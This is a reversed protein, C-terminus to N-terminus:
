SAVSNRRPYGRAPKGCPMNERMGIGLMATRRTIAETRKASFVRWAAKFDARAHDFTAATGDTYSQRSAARTSVASEAWPDEDFPIGTRIAITGVHVDGYYVHWCEERADAVPSNPCASNFRPPVLSPLGARHVSFRV